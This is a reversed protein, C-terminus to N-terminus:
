CCSFNQSMLSYQNSIDEWSCFRKVNSPPNMKFETKSFKVSGRQLKVVSWLQHKIDCCRRESSSSASPRRSASSRQSYNDQPPLLLQCKAWTPTASTSIEARQRSTSTFPSFLVAPSPIIPAHGNLILEAKFLYCAPWVLSVWHLSSFFSASTQRDSGDM